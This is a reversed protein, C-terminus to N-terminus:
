RRRERNGPATRPINLVLVSGHKLGAEKVTLTQDLENGNYLVISDSQNKRDNFYRLSQRAVDRVKTKRDAFVDVLRVAPPCVVTLHVWIM